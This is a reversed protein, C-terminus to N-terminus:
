NLHANNMFSMTTGSQEPEKSLYGDTYGKVYAQSIAVYAAALFGAMKLSRNM